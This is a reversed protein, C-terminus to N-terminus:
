ELPGDAYLELFACKTCRVARIRPGHGEKSSRKGIFTTPPEGAVWCAATVQLSKDLVYGVEVSGNCKPCNSSAKM